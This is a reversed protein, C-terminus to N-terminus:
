EYFKWMSQLWRDTPFLGELHKYEKAPQAALMEEESAGQAKLASLRDTITVLMDRYAALDAKTALPGHGPIVKTNDDIMELVTNVGNIMGEVGGGSNIDIFPFMGQFFLDGMHVVNSGKFYVVSDGDTHASPFHILQIEEGNWHLNMAEPYTITPLAQPEAPPITTNFARIEGGKALRVRVNDQAVIIAHQGFHANGGTHDFHWHTNILFDPESGGLKTIEAQIGEALNAFQDDILLTGDEGISVGLNGGQGTIMYIPGAVLESVIEVEPDAAPGSAAAQENEHHHDEDTHDKSCASVSVALGLVLLLNKDIKM